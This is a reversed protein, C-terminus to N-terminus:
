FRKNKNSITNNIEIKKDIVFVKEGNIEFCGNISTERVLKVIDTEEKINKGIEYCLPEEDSEFKITFGGSIKEKLFKKEVKKTSKINVSREIKEYEICYRGGLCTGGKSCMNDKIYFKCGRRDRRGEDSSKLYTIHWPTGELGLLNGM